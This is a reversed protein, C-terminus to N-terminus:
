GRLTHLLDFILFVLGLYDPTGAEWAELRSTEKRVTTTLEKLFLILIFGLFLIVDFNYFFCLYM